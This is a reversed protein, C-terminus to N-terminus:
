GRPAPPTLAPNPTLRLVAGDHLYSVEPPRTSRGPETHPAVHGPSVSLRPNVNVAFIKNFRAGELDAADLTTARFVAKASRDIGTIKGGTLKDCIMSVAVGHGCGIELVHDTPEVALTEVAWLLRGSSIEGGRHRGHDHGDCRPRARRPRSRLHVEAWLRAMGNPLRAVRGRASPGPADTARLRSAKSM